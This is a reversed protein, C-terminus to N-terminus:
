RNRIGRTRPAIRPAVTARDTRDDRVVRIQAAELQADVALEDAPGLVPRGAVADDDSMGLNVRSPLAFSQAAHEDPSCEILDARAALGHDRGAREGSGVDTAM